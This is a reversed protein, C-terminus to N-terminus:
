GVRIQAGGGGIGVVGEIARPCRIVVYEFLPTKLDRCIRSRYVMVVDENSVVSGIM